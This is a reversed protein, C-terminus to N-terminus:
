SNCRGLFTTFPSVGYRKDLPRDMVNMNDVVLCDFALFRLTETRTRPDVDLLLEGDLLTNGLPRQPNEHHPFFFGHLQRYDNHRDIQVPQDARRTGHAFFLPPPSVIYVQQDDPAHVGTCILFLVRLGDSKECM